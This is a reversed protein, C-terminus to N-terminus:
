PMSSSRIFCTILFNGWVLHASRAAKWKGEKSMYLCAQLPFEAKAGPLARLFYGQHQKLEAQATYKDMDVPVAKWWYDKMWDYKELAETTSMVELGSQRASSFIVSHDIQFFSGSRCAEEADIGVTNAREKVEPTLGKLREIGEHEDARAAYSALNIDPGIASPKQEATKAKQHLDVKPM